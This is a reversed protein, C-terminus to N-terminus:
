SPGSAIAAGRRGVVGVGRLTLLSLFYAWAVVTATAHICPQQSVALVLFLVLAVANWGDSATFKGGLVFVVGIMWLMLLALISFFRRATHFYDARADSSDPHTAGALLISAALFLLIPGIVAYVFSAFGWQEVSLIELTYWFLLFHELLLLLLWSLPIWHLNLEARHSVLTSLGMLINGISISMSLVTVFMMAVLLANTVEM